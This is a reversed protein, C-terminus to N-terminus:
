VFNECAYSTCFFLLGFVVIPSSFLAWWLPNIKGKVEGKIASNYALKLTTAPLCYVRYTNPTLPCVLPAAATRSCRAQSSDARANVNVFTLSHIKIPFQNLVMDVYLVLLFLFYLFGKVELLANTQDLNTVDNKGSRVRARHEPAWQQCCVATVASFGCRWLNACDRLTLLHKGKLRFFYGTYFLNLQLGDIHDVGRREVLIFWGSEFYDATFM